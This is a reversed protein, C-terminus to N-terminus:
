GIGNEMRDLKVKTIIADPQQTIPKSELYGEWDNKEYEYAM